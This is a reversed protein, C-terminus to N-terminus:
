RARIDAREGTSTGLVRTSLFACGAALAASYMANLAALSLGMVSWDVESCAPRTARANRLDIIAGPDPLAAECVSPESWLGQQVGVHYLAIASGIVFVAACTKFVLRLRVPPMTAMMAFGSLVATLAYPVRQYICLTCGAIAFAYEAIFATLLAGISAAAVLTAARNPDFLHMFASQSNDALM